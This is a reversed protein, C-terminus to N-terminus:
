TSRPPPAPLAAPAPPAGDALSPRRPLGFWQGWRDLLRPWLGHVLAVLRATGPVYLRRRRRAAARLTREVVVKARVRRGRLIPPLADLKDLMPTEVLLPFVTTVGVGDPGLEVRLAESFNEVAGKSASYASLLPWGHLSATSGLLVIQGRARKLAPLAARVAHATGLVNVSLVRAFAEASQEAFAGPGLVGACHVLLALQEGAQAIAAALPEIAAPTSLDAVVTHVEVGLGAATSALAAADLDALVLRHGRAALAIAFQQGMGSGAGTVLAVPETM